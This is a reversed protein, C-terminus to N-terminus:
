AKFWKKLNKVFEAVRPNSVQNARVTACIVHEGFGRASIGSLRVPTTLNSKGHTAQLRMPLVAVGLGKECFRQATTFSDLAMKKSFAYGSKELYYLASRNDSDIAQPVYILTLARAADAELEGAGGTKLFFNFKDKYLPWSVFDGSVRPEADVLIDIEGRELLEIQKVESSTKLSIALDPNESQMFALFDPWLYEALSEYTGIRIHGALKNSPAQLKAELNELEKLTQNAYILLEEGAATLSVGRRSRSFLETGCAEELTKIMRSLAPQTVHLRKAAEHITGAQAIAVFPRLKDLHESIMIGLHLRIYENIAIKIIV